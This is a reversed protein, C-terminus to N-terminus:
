WRYAAGGKDAVDARGIDVRLAHRPFDCAEDEADILAGLAAQWDIADRLPANNM